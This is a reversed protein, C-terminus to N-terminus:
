EVGIKRRFDRIIEKHVHCPNMRHIDLAVDTAYSRTIAGNDVLMILPVLGRICAVGEKKCQSILKSDNSVCTWENARALLFCIWDYFSLPGNRSAEGAIVLQDLSPEVITIELEECALRDLPKVEDLVVDALFIRGVDISFLKLIHKRSECYDILVNSDFIYSM